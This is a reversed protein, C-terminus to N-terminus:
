MIGQALKLYDPTITILPTGVLNAGSRYIVDGDALTGVGWSTISFSSVSAGAVASGSRKYIQGDTATGVGLSTIAIASPSGGGLLIANAQSLTVLDQSATGDAFSVGKFSGGNLNQTLTYDAKLAMKTALDVSAGRAAIIEDELAEGNASLDNLAPIYISPTDNASFTPWTLPM